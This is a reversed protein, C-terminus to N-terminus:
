DILPDGKPAEGGENGTIGERAGIFNLMFGATDAVAEIESDVLENFLPESVERPAVAAVAKLSATRIELKAADDKAIAVLNSAAAVGHRELKGISRVAIEKVDDFKSQLGRVLLDVQETKRRIIFERANKALEANGLGTFAAFVVDKAAVHSPNAELLAMGARLRIHPMSDKLRAELVPYAKPGMAALARTAIAQIGPNIDDLLVGVKEAAVAAPEGIEIFAECARRRDLDDDSDVKEVWYSLSKGLGKPEPTCGGILAFVLAISFFTRFTKM